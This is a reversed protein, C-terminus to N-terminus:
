LLGGENICANAGGTGMSGASCWRLSIPDGIRSMEGEMVGCRRSELPFLGRGGISMCFSLTSLWSGSKTMTWGGAM